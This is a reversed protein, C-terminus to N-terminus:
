LTALDLVSGPGGPLSRTLDYTGIDAAQAAKWRPWFDANEVTMGGYSADYEAMYPNKFGWYWLSFGSSVLLYGLVKTLIAGPSRDDRIATAMSYDHFIDGVSFGM